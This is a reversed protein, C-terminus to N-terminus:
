FGLSELRVDAAFSPMIIAGRGLDPVRGPVRVDANRRRIQVHRDLVICYPLQKPKSACAIGM